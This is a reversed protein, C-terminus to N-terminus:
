QEIMVNHLIVDEGLSWDTMTHTFLPIMYSGSDRSLTFFSLEDDIYFRTFVKGIDVSYLHRGEPWAFTKHDQKKYRYDDADTKRDIKWSRDWYHIAQNLKSPFDELGFEAIDVEPL